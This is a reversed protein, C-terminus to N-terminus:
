LEYNKFDIKEYIAWTDVQLNNIYDDIETKSKCNSSDTCKM